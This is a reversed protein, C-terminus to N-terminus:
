PKGVVIFLEIKGDPLDREWIELTKKKTRVDFTRYTM